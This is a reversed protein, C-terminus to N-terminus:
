IKVISISYDKKCNTVYTEYAVYSCYMVYEGPKLELNDYSGSSYIDGIDNGFKDEINLSAGNSKFDIKYTANETIQFSYQNKFWPLSVCDNIKCGNINATINQIKNPLYINLTGAPQKGYYEIKIKFKGSILDFIEGYNKNKLNFSNYCYIDVDNEDYLYIQYNTYDKIKSLMIVYTGDTDISLDYNAVYCHTDGYSKEADKKWNLEHVEPQTFNLESLNKEDQENNASNSSQSTYGNAYTSNSKNSKSTYGSVNTSDFNNNFLMVIVCIVAVVILIIIGVRKSSAQPSISKLTKLSSSSTSNSKATNQM